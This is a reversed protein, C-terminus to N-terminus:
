NYECQHALALRPFPSQNFNNWLKSGRVDKDEPCYTLRVHFRTTERNVRQNVGQETLYKELEARSHVATVAAHVLYGVAMLKGSNKKAGLLIVLTGQVFERRKVESFRQRSFFTVEAVGPVSGNTLRGDYRIVIVKSNDAVRLGKALLVPMTDTAHHSYTTIIFQLDNKKM